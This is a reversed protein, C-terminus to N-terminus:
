AAITADARTQQLRLVVEWAVKPRDYRQITHEQMGLWQWPGAFLRDIDARDFFRKCESYTGHVRWYHPEVEEGQGAGHLVDRLSNLRCLLLGGPQLVRRVEAVARLTTAWDFYHLCLSAVVVSFSADAFPLPQRLDLQLLQAGPAAQACAQLAPLSIDCAVVALGQERLWATDGGADCGLELVAAGGARIAPLWPEMWRDHEASM